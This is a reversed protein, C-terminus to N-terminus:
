TLNKLITTLFQSIDYPKLIIDNMGAEYIPNLNEEAEVATFAIIPINKNFERIATTTELGDMDPMHVDMLILDIEIDKVIAIAEKGSSALRCKFDRTELIRQTIKQNIKNDDVVLICYEEELSLPAEEKVSTIEEKTIAELDIKFSFTSGKGLASELEIESDYLKLLRKVIFLGLGTGQYNYNKNEVQSFEKFILEQKNVPIGIGDDKISFKTKYRNNKVDHEILNISIWVNGNESFKVANGVLNMLIQSLRVSDGILNDPLNADINLHIKNKNQQLSFAFSRNINHLLMRLSFSTKELKVGNADMKNITLVDNILAMLYDASFKLSTINEKQVELRKDELLISSIGIVGYLPTRLEHSVTSFFQAKLKSLRESENKAETLEENKDHLNKIYMKRARLLMFLAIFAILFVFSLVIFTKTIEGSKKVLQDSYEQERRASELDRQYQELEFKASAEEIEKVKKLNLIQDSYKKQEKLHVNALQYNEKEEYSKALYTNIEVAEVSYKGAIVKKEAEKLEKIALNYKKKGFYYRGFLIKLNIYFLDPEKKSSSLSKCKILYPYALDYQNQDLYTWGLNLYATLNKINPVGNNENISISEKFYEIGKKPNKGIDSYADGLAEYALAILTDTKSILALELARRYNSFAKLSDKLDNSYVFGLDNYGFFMYRINNTKAAENILLADTKITNKYDQKSYYYYSRKFLSDLKKEVANTQSVGKKPVMILVFLFLLHKLQM